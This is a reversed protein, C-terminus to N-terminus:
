VGFALAGAVPNSAHRGAWLRILFNLVYLTAFFTVIYIGGVHVHKPM